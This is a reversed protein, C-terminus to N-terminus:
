ASETDTEHQAESRNSKAWDKILQAIKEQEEPAMEARMMRTITPVSKGLVSSLQYVYMDNEFLAKRIIRNTRM